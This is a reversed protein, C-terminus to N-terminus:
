GRRRALWLLGFFVFLFAPIKTPIQPMVSCNGSEISVNNEANDKETDGGVTASYDTTLSCAVTCDLGQFYLPDPEDWPEGGDAEENKVSRAAQDDLSESVEIPALNKVVAISQDFVLKEDEYGEADAVYKHKGVGVNCDCTQNTYVQWLGSGMNTLYGSISIWQPELLVGDRKLGTMKFEDKCMAVWTIQVHTTEPVQRLILKNCGVPNASADASYLFYIFGVLIARWFM